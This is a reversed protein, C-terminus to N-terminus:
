DSCSMCTHTTNPHGIPVICGRSACPPRRARNKAGMTGIKLFMYRHRTWLCSCQHPSLVTGPGCQTLVPVRAAGRVGRRPRARGPRRARPAGTSGQASKRQQVLQLWRCQCVWLAVALRPMSLPRKQPTQCAWHWEGPGPRGQHAGRPGLRYRPPRGEGPPPLSFVLCM